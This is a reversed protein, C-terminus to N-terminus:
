QSDSQFFADVYPSIIHKRSQSNSLTIVLLKLAYVHIMVFLPLTGVDSNISLM